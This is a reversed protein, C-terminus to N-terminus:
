LQIILCTKLYLRFMDCTYKIKNRNKSVDRQNTTSGLGLDPIHPSVKMLEVFKEINKCSTKLKVKRSSKQITHSYLM